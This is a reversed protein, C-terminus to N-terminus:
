TLRLRPPKIVEDQNVLSLASPTQERRLRAKAAEFYDAAEFGSVEHYEWGLKTCFKRIAARGIVNAAKTGSISALLTFFRSPQHPIEERSVFCGLYEFIMKSTRSGLLDTLAEDM